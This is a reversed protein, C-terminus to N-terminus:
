DLHTHEEEIAAACDQFGGASRLDFQDTEPADGPVIEVGVEDCGMGGFRWLGESDHEAVVGIM